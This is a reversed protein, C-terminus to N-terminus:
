GGLELGIGFRCASACTPPRRTTWTGPKRKPRPNPNPNPNPNRNPNPIHHPHPHPGPVLGRLSLTLSTTLTRTRGPCWAEFAEADSLGLLSGWSPPPAIERPSIEGPAIEPPSIEAPAIEPASIEPPAIEPPSIEPTWDWGQASPPSAVEGAAMGDLPLAQVM